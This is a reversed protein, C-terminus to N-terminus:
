LNHYKESFGSSSQLNKSCSKMRRERRAAHWIRQEDPFNLTRKMELVFQDEIMDHLQNKYSKAGRTSSSLALQIAIGEEQSFEPTLIAL